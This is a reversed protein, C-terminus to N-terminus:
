PRKIVFRNTLAKGSSAGFLKVSEFDFEAKGINNLEADLPYKPNAPVLVSQGGPTGTQKCRLAPEVTVTYDGAVVMKLVATGDVTANKFKTYVEDDPIAPDPKIGGLNVYSHYVMGQTDTGSVGTLKVLFIAEDHGNWLGKANVKVHMDGFASATSGLNVGLITMRHTGTGKIGGSVQGPNLINAVITVDSAKNVVKLGVRGSVPEDVEILGRNSSADYNIYDRGTASDKSPVKSAEPTTWRYKAINTRVGMERGYVPIEGTINFPEMMKSTISNIFASDAGLIPGRYVEHLMAGSEVTVTMTSSNTVGVGPTHNSLSSEAVMSATDKVSINGASIFGAVDGSGLMYSTGSVNVGASEVGVDSGIARVVTNNAGASSIQGTSTIGYKGGGASLMSANDARINGGSTVATNASEVRIRQALLAIEGNTKFGNQASSSKAYAIITGGYRMASSMDISPNGFAANVGYASPVGGAAIVGNTEGDGLIASGRAPMMYGTSEVGTVSGTGIIKARGAENSLITLDESITKGMTANTFATNLGNYDSTNGYAQNIAVIDGLAKIGIKAGSGEVRSTGSSYIGKAYIGYEATDTNKVVNAVGKVVANGSTLINASSVNIGACGGYGEVRGDGMVKLNAKSSIGSPLYSVPFNTLPAPETKGILTGGIVSTDSTGLIAVGQFSGIGTVENGAPLILNNIVFGKSGVMTSTAQATIKINKPDGSGTTKQLTVNTASLGVHISKANLVASEGLDTSLVIDTAQVGFRQTTATVDVFTPHTGTVQSAEIRFHRGWPKNANDAAYLGVIEGSAYLTSRTVKSTDSLFVGFNKGTANVASDYMELSGNGTYANSFINNKEINGFNGVHLGNIGSATIQSNKLLMGDGSFVGVNRNKYNELLDAAVSSINADMSMGGFAAGTIKATNGNGSKDTTITQKVVRLGFWEGEAEIEANNWAYLNGDRVVIGSTPFWESTNAAETYRTKGILKGGNVQVTNSAWIPYRGNHSNLESGSGTIRIGGSSFVGYEATAPNDCIIKSNASIILQNRSEEGEINNLVSAGKIGANSGSVNVTVPMEPAASSVELWENYTIGVNNGSITLNRPLSNLPAALSTIKFRDGETHLASANIYKLKLEKSNCLSITFKQNPGDTSRIIDLGDNATIEHYILHSEVSWTAYDNASGSVVTGVAKDNGSYLRLENGNGNASSKLDSSGPKWSRARRNGGLPEGKLLGTYVRVVQVSNSGSIFVLGNNDVKRDLTDDIQVADVSVEGTTVTEEPPETVPPQESPEQPAVPEQEEPVSSEQQKEPTSEPEKPEEPQVPEPISSIEQAPVSTDPISSDNFLIRGLNVVKVAKSFNDVYLAPIYKLSNAYSEAGEITEAAGEGINGTEPVPEPTPEPAPPEPAPEPSPEPAPEPSPEPTPAPEPAPEPEPVPAPEAPKEQEDSGPAPAEVPVEEQQDEIIAEGIAAENEKEDKATELEAATQESSDNSASGDDFTMNYNDIQADMKKDQPIVLKNTLDNGTPNVLVFVAELKEADFMLYSINGNDLIKTDLLIRNKLQESIIQHAYKGFDVLNNTEKTTPNYVAGKLAAVASLDAEKPNQLAERLLTLIEEQGYEHVVMEESDARAANHISNASVAVILLLAAGLMFIRKTRKKITRNKFIKSFM